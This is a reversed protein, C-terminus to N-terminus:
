KKDESKLNRLCNLVKEYYDICEQHFERDGLADLLTGCESVWDWENNGSEYFVVADVHTDKCDNIYKIAEDLNMSM